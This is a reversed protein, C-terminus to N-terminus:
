LHNIEAIRLYIAAEAIDAKMQALRIYDAILELQMKLFEMGTESFAYGGQLDTMRFLEAIRRQVEEETLPEARIEEETTEQKEEQDEKEEKIREEQKRQARRKKM